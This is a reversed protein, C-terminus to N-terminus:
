NHVFFFCMIKKNFTFITFLLAFTIVIGFTMMNGAITFTSSTVNSFLTEIITWNVIVTNITRLFAFTHTNQTIISIPDCVSDTSQLCIWKFKTDFFIPLFPALHLWTSPLQMQEFPQFPVSHSSRMQGSWINPSVHSCVHSHSLFLVFLQWGHVPFHSQLAPQLLLKHLRGHGNKVNPSFQAFSHSHLPAWHEGNVPSHM